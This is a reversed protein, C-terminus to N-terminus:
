NDWVFKWKGDVKKWVTHFVGKFDSRGGVSDIATFTYCGFTYGMDGCESADVFDPSWVVTAMKFKQDSYHATIEKVGCFVKDNVLIRADKDAYSSFAKAIGDKRCLEAFAKETELIERKAQTRKDDNGGQGQDAGFAPIFIIVLQLLAAVTFTIISNKKM